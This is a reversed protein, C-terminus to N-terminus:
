RRRGHVRHWIRHCLVCLAIGNLVNYRLEPAGVWSFPFHHAQLKKTEDCFRCVKDRRLVAERWRVYEGDGHSTAPPDPFNRKNGERRKRKEEEARDGYLEEYTKGRFYVGTKERREPSQIRGRMWKGYGLRRARESRRKREEPTILARQSESMKVRTSNSARRGKMWGGYGRELAIRRMKKCYEQYRIPDRPPPM